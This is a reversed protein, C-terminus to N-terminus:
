IRVAGKIEIDNFIPKGFMSIVKIGCKPCECKDGYWTIVESKSVRQITIGNKVVKMEVFCRACIPRM